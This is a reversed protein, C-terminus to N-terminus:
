TASCLSSMHSMRPCAIDFRVAVMQGDTMSSGIVDNLCSGFEPVIIRERLSFLFLNRVSNRVADLDVLSNESMRYVGGYQLRWTGDVESLGEAELVSDIFVRRVGGLVAVSRPDLAYRRGSSTFVMRPARQPEEAAVYHRSGQLRVDAQTFSSYAPLVNGITKFSADRYRYPRSASRGGPSVRVVLAM